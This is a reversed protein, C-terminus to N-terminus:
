IISADRESSKKVGLSGCTSASFRLHVESARRLKVQLHGKTPWTLAERGGHKM